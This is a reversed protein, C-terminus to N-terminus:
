LNRSITKRFNGHGTNYVGALSYIGHAMANWFGPFIAKMPRLGAGIAADEWADPSLGPFAWLTLLGSMVGGLILALLWDLGRLSELQIEPKRVTEDKAPDTEEADYDDEYYKM